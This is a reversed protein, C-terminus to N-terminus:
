SILVNFNRALNVQNDRMSGSNDVEFLIDVAEEEDNQVPLVVASTLRPPSAAVPRDLCGYGWAAILTVGLAGRERM